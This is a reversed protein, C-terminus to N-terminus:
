RTAGVPPFIGCLGSFRIDFALCWIDATCRWRGIKVIKVPPTPPPSAARRNKCHTVCMFLARSRSRRPRHWCPRRRDTNDIAPPTVVDTAVIHIEAFVPAQVSPTQVPATQVPPTQVSPTPPTQDPPVVPLAATEPAAVVTVAPVETPAGPPVFSAPVTVFDRGEDTPAAPRIFFSFAPTAGLDHGSNAGTITVDNSNILGNGNVDSRFNAATVPTGSNSGVITYDNSNVHGNGNVDGLLVGVSLSFNASAGSTLDRVDNLTIVLTHADNAGSMTITVVAGAVAMTGTGSSLALTTNAINLTRDFTLLIKTPGGSRSEIGATGTLPLAIDFDGAAGQTKRSVASLLGPPTAVIQAAATAATVDAGNTGPGRYLFHGRGASVTADTYTSVGNDVFALM